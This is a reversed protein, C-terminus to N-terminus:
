YQRSPLRVILGDLQETLAIQCALRSRGDPEFAFRLTNRERASPAAIHGAWAEELYIHCTACGGDGGCAASIGPVDNLVATEMITHGLSGDVAHQIGGHEIFIIKPM